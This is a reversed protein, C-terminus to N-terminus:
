GKGPLPDEKAPMGRLAVVAGFLVWAVGLPVLLLAREDETNFGYAVFGAAALLFGSPGVRRAALFGFAITAAMAVAFGLFVIPWPLFMAVAGVLSAAAAMTIGVHRGPLSRSVVLAAFGTALAAGIVVVLATDTDKYGLSPIMSSSNFAVAAVAWLLGGVVALIGGLRASRSPAGDGSPTPALQPHLRADIAGRVIDMREVTSPKRVELVGLFESEYRDRWSRPYLDVLRSM